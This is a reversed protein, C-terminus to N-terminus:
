PKPTPDATVGGGALTGEGKKYYRKVVDKIIDKRGEHHGLPNWHGLKGTSALEALRSKADYFSLCRRIQEVNRDKESQYGISIYIGPPLSNINSGKYTAGSYEVGIEYGVGHGKQSIIVRKTGKVEQPTFFAGYDTKMSYVVTSEDLMDVNTSTSSGMHVPGPVPDFFVAEVKALPYNQKAYRAVQAAAVAGRSHAKILVLWGAGGTAELANHIITEGTEINNAIRNKGEDLTGKGGPGLPGGITWTRGGDRERVQGHIPLGVHSKRLRPTGHGKRNADNKTITGGGHKVWQSRHRFLSDGSGAMELKLVKSQDAFNESRGGALQIVSTTSALKAQVPTTHAPVFPGFPRVNTDMGRNQTASDPMYSPNMAMTGPKAPLIPGPKAQIAVNVPNRAPLIASNTALTRSPLSAAGSPQPAPAPLASKAQIPVSASAARLAMREAEAELAPDQVVAVGAGLPNHVRGARQQVVHTLEHGLLQQGQHSQPNYQGPAFYLDTGHAFALAGISPAENGVHVRVDAFSTNFFSEMKKQIADPLPQGSGRPKLTFNAPLAFANGAHLQVATPTACKPLIPQPAQPRLLTAAQVAGHQSRTLVIPGPLQGFRLSPQLGGTALRGPLLPTPVSAPRAQIPPPTPLQPRVPAAPAPSAQLIAPRGGPFFGQIVRSRAGAHHPPIPGTSNSM